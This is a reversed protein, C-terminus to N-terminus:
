PFLPRARELCWFVALSGIAYAPVSEVWSPARAVARRLMRGALLVCAVFALQGFEIGVNFSVLSLPIEEPPLGVSALAGAFGLGHLLGFVGAILSPRRRMAGGVEPSAIEVALVLISLAIAFEIPGTPFSVYGLVALALTLSHGLTFATVTWVRSRLDHVLLLLGWVFLLHDLGTLIHQVGLAAYDAFVQYPRQREPVVYRADAGSLVSQVRRGDLLAVRVLADTRSRDLGLVRLPHGAIGAAGCDV